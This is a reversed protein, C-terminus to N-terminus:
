HQADGAPPLGKNPETRPRENRVEAELAERDPKKGDAPSKEVDAQARHEAEKLRQTVAKLAAKQERIYEIREIKDMRDISDFDWSEETYLPPSPNGVLGMGGAYRRLMEQLSMTQDPVTLSIQDDGLFVRGSDPTYDNKDVINRM